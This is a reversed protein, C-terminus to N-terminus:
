VRVMYGVGLDAVPDMMKTHIYIITITTPHNIIKDNDFMSDHVMIHVSILNFLIFPDMMGDPVMM